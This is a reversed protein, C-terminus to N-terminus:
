EPTRTGRQAGRKQYRGGLSTRGTQKECREGKSRSSLLIGCHTLTQLYTGATISRLFGRTFFDRKMIKLDVFLLATTSELYIFSINLIKRRPFGHSCRCFSFRKNNDLTRRFRLRYLFIQALFINDARGNTMDAIERLGVFCSDIDLASKHWM